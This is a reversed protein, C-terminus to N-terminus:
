YVYGNYNQVTGCCIGYKFLIIRVTLTKARYNGRM